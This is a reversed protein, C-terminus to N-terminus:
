PTPNNHTSQVRCRMWFLILTCVRQVKKVEDLKVTDGAEDEHDSDIDKAFQPSESYDEYFFDVPLKKRKDQSSDNEKLARKQVLRGDTTEHVEITRVLTKKVLDARTESIVFSRCHFNSKKQRRPPVPLM